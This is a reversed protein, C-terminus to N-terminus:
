KVGPGTQEGTMMTIMAMDPETGRGQTKTGGGADPMGARDEGLGTGTGTGAGTVPAQGTEAETDTDTEAEAEEGTRITIRNKENQRL